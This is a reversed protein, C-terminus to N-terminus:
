RHYFGPQVVDAVFDLRIFKPLPVDIGGVAHWHGLRSCTGDAAWRKLVQHLGCAQTLLGAEVSFFCVWLFSDASCLFFVPVVVIFVFFCNQKPNQKGQNQKNNNEQVFDTYFGVARCERHQQVRLECWWHFNNLKWRKSPSTGSLLHTYPWLEQPQSGVQHALMINCTGSVVLLLGNIDMLVLVFFCDM